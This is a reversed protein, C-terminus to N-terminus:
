FRSKKTNYQGRIGSNQSYYTAQRHYTWASLSEGQRTTKKTKINIIAHSGGSADHKASPNSDIEITKIDNAPISKLYEALETESMYLDRGDIKVKMAGGRFSFSNTTQNFSVNPMKSLAELANGSSLIPSQEVDIIMVGHKMTMLPRQADIELEKMTQEIPVISDNEVKTDDDDQTYVSFSIFLLIFLLFHKNLM